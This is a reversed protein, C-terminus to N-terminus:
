KREQQWLRVGGIFANNNDGARAGPPMVDLKKTNGGGLVVYEAQLAQKLRAVVDFVAEHWKKKGLRRMGNAGVYDEFTKGKKYPLHGLELPAIVGDLILTTGLGTGLGLFLMRGGEYSGLAQMAADNIVKVPKGLTSFDYGLWGPGLNVPDQAIVGRVVPGPYGISVADFKWGTTEKLLDDVLQQPTLTPGSPTKRVEEGDSVKLKINTGGVDVILINM